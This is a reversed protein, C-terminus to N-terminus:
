IRGSLGDSHCEHGLVHWHTDIEPRFLLRQFQQMLISFFNTSSSRGSCVYNHERFFNRTDTLVVQRPHIREKRRSCSRMATKRATSFPKASTRDARLPSKVSLSLRPRM